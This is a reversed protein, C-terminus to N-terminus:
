RIFRITLPYRYDNGKNAEMGAVIAFVISLVAAAPLTIFGVGIFVLPISIMQVILMTLQFNVAEKGARDVLPMENKKILWFVLPGLFSPISALICLGSLHTLLAWDNESSGFSKKAPSKPPSAGSVPGEPSDQELPQEEEPRPPLPSSDEM